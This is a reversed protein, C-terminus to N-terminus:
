KLNKNTHKHTPQKPKQSSEERKGKPTRPSSPAKRGELDDYVLFFGCVWLYPSAASSQNLFWVSLKPGCPSLLACGVDLTLLASRAGRAQAAASNHARAGVGALTIVARGEGKGGGGWVGGGKRAVVAVVAVVM